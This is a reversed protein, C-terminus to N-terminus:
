DELHTSEGPKWGWLELASKDGMVAITTFRDPENFLHVPRRSTHKEIAVAKSALLAQKGAELAERKSPYHDVSQCDGFEDIERVEYETMTIASGGHSIKDKM